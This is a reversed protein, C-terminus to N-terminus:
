DKGRITIAGNTAELKIAPGGTGLTGDLRKRSQESVKLELGENSIAGNTIRASLEANTTKPVDLTITGNTTEAAIGGDGVKDFTLEIVGNTTTVKAGDQLGTATVRGNSAEASFTGGVNTVLIDGNSSVLTLSAGKPMTVKYNIRRSVNITLGRVSSDISVRDAAVDEKMELLRLQEKAAAETSAKVIREAVITVTSGEGGIVEIKGNGNKVTVAGNPSLQFSRTWEDKAEVDTSLQLGCAAVPALASVLLSVAMAHRTRSIKPFRM